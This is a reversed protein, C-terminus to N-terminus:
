NIKKNNNANRFILNKKISMEFKEQSKKDFNSVCNGIKKDIEM